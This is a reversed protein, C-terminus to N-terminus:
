EQYTTHQKVPELVNRYELQRMEEVVASAGAEGFTQLGKENTELDSWRVM